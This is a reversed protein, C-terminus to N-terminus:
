NGYNFCIPPEPGGKYLFSLIYSVDLMNVTGSCNADGMLTDPQPPPGDKYLFATLYSADIINIVGNNNADGRSVSLLARFASVLGNGYYIDHGVSDYYPNGVGDRASSDIIMKLTDFGTLDPRRSKVLALGGAVLPAV